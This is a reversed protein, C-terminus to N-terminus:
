WLFIKEQLWRGNSFPALVAAEQKDAFESDTLSTGQPPLFASAQLVSSSCSTSLFLLFGSGEVSFSSSIGIFLLKEVVPFKDGRSSVSFMLSLPLLLPHHHCCPLLIKARFYNKLPPLFSVPDLKVGRLSFRDSHYNNIWIFLRPNKQGFFNGKLSSRRVVVKLVATAPSGIGSNFFKTKWDFVFLRFELQFYEM